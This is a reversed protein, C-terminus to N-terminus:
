VLLSVKGQSELLKARAEALEQDLRQQQLKLLETRKEILQQKM